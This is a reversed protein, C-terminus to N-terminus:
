LFFGEMFMAFVRWGDLGSSEEGTNDFSQEIAQALLDGVVALTGATLSKTRIPNTELQNSYVTWLHNLLQSFRGSTATTAVDDYYLSYGDIAYGAKSTTPPELEDGYMEIVSGPSRHGNPLQGVNDVLLPGPATTMPLTSTCHPSSPVFM